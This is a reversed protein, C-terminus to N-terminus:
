NCPGSDQVYRNDKAFGGGVNNVVLTIEIDEWQAVAAEFDIESKTADEVWLRIDRTGVRRLEESVKALKEPNRGHLIVNFGRKYLEKATAKGIGDTAGTVLAYPARGHLLRGVTPKQYYFALFTALAYSTKLVFAAGIAALVEVATTM